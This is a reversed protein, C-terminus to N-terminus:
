NGGNAGTRLAKKEVQQSASRELNNPGNIRQEAMEGGSKM